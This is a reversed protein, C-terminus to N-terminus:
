FAGRLGASGPGVWVGVTSTRASSKESGGSNSSMLFLVAGSAIGAIGLALGINAITKKSNADNDLSTIESQKTADCNGPVECHYKDNYLSDADDHKSKAGLAFVTALGLGAAGVGLAVFSIVRTGNSGGASTTDATVNATAATAGSPPPAGPASASPAPQPEVNAVPPAAGPKLTLVVNEHAGEKVGITVVDSVAGDGSAQFRHTGPDVPRPVGVLASPVVADDMTVKMNKADGQVVAKVSPIRPELDKLERTADAQADHFPKPAASDLHERVIKNYSEQAKVLQGLKVQARATYLLHPPAHVLSEARTFLDAAEAWKQDRFARAGETAAARAGARTEDSQARATPALTGFLSSVLVFAIARQRLVRVRSGNFGALM